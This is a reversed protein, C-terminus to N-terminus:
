APMRPPDFGADPLKWKTKRHALRNCAPHLLHHVALASSLIFV